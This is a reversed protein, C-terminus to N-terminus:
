LDRYAFVDTHSHSFSIFNLLEGMELYEDFLGECVLLGYDTEWPAVGDHDNAGKERHAPHLKRKHWWAKLKSHRDLTSANKLM